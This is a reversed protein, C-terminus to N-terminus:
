SGRLKKLQDLSDQYWTQNGQQKYLDAAKEFDSIAKEINRKAKYTLGRNYYANAYKPNLQIAQNYDAIALDSKGQNKYVIGRNNYADAYKPNLQIAQNYDALALDSKGQDNYVIGRANYAKAFKPNLQIAQNYDALALDYKGQDCYVNGRGYYGYAYKPNLQIAQSYDAIAQEFEERDLHKNGQISYIAGRLTKGFYIIAIAGLLFYNEWNGIGNKRATSPSSVPTVNDTNGVIRNKPSPTPSPLAVRTSRVVVRSVQQPMDRLFTSVLVGKGDGDVKKTVGVHIGMLQGAENL